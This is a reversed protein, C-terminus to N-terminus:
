MSELYSKALPASKSSGAAVEKLLASAQETKGQQNYIKGLNYKADDVKSHNPFREILSAFAKASSDMDGKTQYVFGLWFLSSGAYTSNPYKTTINQFATGAGDYDKNKLMNYAADYEDRGDENNATSTNNSATNATTNNANASAAAASGSFRREMELQQRSLNNITNAQEEVQGRLNEVEQRLQQIQQFMSGNAVEASTSASSANANQSDTGYTQGSSAGSSSDNNVQVRTHETGIDSIPAPAAMAMSSAVLFGATLASIKKM